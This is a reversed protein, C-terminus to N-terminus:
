WYQWVSENCGQDHFCRYPFFGIFTSSFDVLDFNDHKEKEVGTEKQEMAATDLIFVLYLLSSAIWM